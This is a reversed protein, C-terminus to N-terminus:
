IAQYYKYYERKKVEMTAFEQMDKSIVSYTSDRVGFQTLYKNYNKDKELGFPKVLEHYLHLPKVKFLKPDGRLVTVKHSCLIGIINLLLGFNYDVNFKKKFIPPNVRSVCRLFNKNTLITKIIQKLSDISIIDENVFSSNMIPDIFEIMEDVIRLKENIDKIKSLDIGESIYRVEEPKILKILHNVVFLKEYLGEQSVSNNKQLLSIFRKLLYTDIEIEKVNNLDVMSAILRYFCRQEKFLDTNCTEIILNSLEEFFVTVWSKTYLQNDYKGANIHKCNIINKWSDSYYKVYEDNIEKVISILKSTIDNEKGGYITNLENESLTIIYYTGNYKGLHFTAKITTLSVSFNLSTRQNSLAQILSYTNSRMKGGTLQSSVALKTLIRSDEYFLSSTISEYNDIISYLYVFPKLIRIQYDLREPLTTIRKWKILTYYYKRILYLLSRNFLDKRHTHYREYSICAAKYLLAQVWTDETLYFIDDFCVTPPYPKGFQKIIESIIEISNYVKDNPSFHDSPAHILAEVQSAIDSQLYNRYDLKVLASTIELQITKSLLGRTGMITSVDNESVYFFPTSDYFVKASKPTLDGCDETKIRKGDKDIIEIKM